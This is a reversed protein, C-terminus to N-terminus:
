VGRKDGHVLVHLRTTLNWRNLVVQEVIQQTREILEHRTTGLPMIWVRDNPVGVLEVIDAVQELDQLTSVVFKFRADAAEYTRLTLVDPNIKANAHKLKPSVNFEMSCDDPDIRLPVVGSTEVEIVEFLTQNKFCQHLAAQQTMPEGGSVVLRDTGYKSVLKLLTDQVSELTMLRAETKATGPKWTYGTDCWECQVPCGYLRLFLTPKGIDPGEGQFTPGFIENVILRNSQTLTQTM